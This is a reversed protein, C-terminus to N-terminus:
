EDQDPGPGHAVKEVMALVSESHEGTYRDRELLTVALASVADRKEADDATEAGDFEPGATVRGGGLKRSHDLAAYAAGLTENPGKARDYTAIGVSVRIGEVAGARTSELALVIREAFAAAGPLDTEPMLVAFEDGGARCAVDTPRTEDELVRGVERLVADAAAHGHRAMLARFDDVDLVAVALDQGHRRARRLELELAMRFRELTALGTMPDREAWGRLEIELQAVRAQSDALLQALEQEREKRGTGLM